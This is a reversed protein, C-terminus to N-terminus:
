ALLGYALLTVGASAVLWLGLVVPPRAPFRRMFPREVVVHLAIALALATVFRLLSLPAGDLGGTREPVLVLRVPWHVLYLAYSITGLAVLPRWALTRALSGDALIGVLVCTSVISVLAFGGHFLWWQSKSALMFLAILGAFALWGLADARRGRVQRGSVILVCALVCGAAIEPARVQTGWEAMTPSLDAFRAIGAGVIWATATIWLMVVAPRACRRVGLLVVGVVLYFQEEVALSWYPSLPHVIRLGADPGYGIQHWNMVSWIAAVPDTWVMANQWGWARGGALVVVVATTALAAPALRRIRRAWFAGLDVSGTTSRERLLLTVILYGSLTFFVSVGLLGGTVAEPDFHYAVVALVAVARLGDLAPRYTLYRHRGAITTGPASPDNAVTPPTPEM